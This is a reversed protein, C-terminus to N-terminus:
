YKKFTVSLIVVYRKAANKTESKKRNANGNLPPFDDEDVVFHGGKSEQVRVAPVFHNPQFCVGPSNNFNSDRTFMIYIPDKQLYERQRPLIKGHLVARISEHAMPYISFVPRQLVSSLAMIQLFAGWTYPISTAIAEQRVIDEKKSINQYDCSLTLAFTGHHSYHTKAFPSHFHPHNAYYSSNLFLEGAVLIRLVNSLNDRGCIAMSASNYLCNGDARSRKAVVVCPVDEPMLLMSLSDAPVNKLLLSPDDKISLQLVNEYVHAIARCKSIDGAVMANKLLEIDRSSNDYYM